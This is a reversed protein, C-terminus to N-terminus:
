QERERERERGRERKIGQKCMIKIMSTNLHNFLLTKTRHKRIFRQTQYYLTLDWSHILSKLSMITMMMWVFRKEDNILTRFETRTLKCAISSVSRTSKHIGGRPNRWVYSNFSHIQFDNLTSFTFLPGILLPTKLPTKQPTKM